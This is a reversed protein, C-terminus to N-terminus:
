ARGGAIRQYVVPVVILVLVTSTAMGGIVAVALPARLEAGSGLGVAMPLLGLITTSSTMVIPRLRARGAAEIAARQPMGDARGRGIADVMLIANNVAIGALVVIGILSMTDLGNGTVALLLIAGILSLPVALLVVVPLVFSEFQAALIMYILFLALLFAFGLGRFTRHLELGGGAVRVRVGESGDIERVARRVDRVSGALDGEGVDATIRAIREQGERRIYDMSLLLMLGTAYGIVINFFLAFGDLVVMGRFGRLEGAGAFTMWYTVVLAAIVGLASVFGLHEKRERPPVLDLLLVVGATLVIVLMPWLPRLEIVPLTLPANM